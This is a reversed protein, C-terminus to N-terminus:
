VFREFYARTDHFMPDLALVEGPTLWRADAVEQELLSLPGHGSAPVDLFAEFWVILWVDNHSTCRYVEEGATVWLGVEERVERRVADILPEGPDPKGTVTGWFGGASIHRARQILLFRGDDRRIVASIALPRETEPAERM